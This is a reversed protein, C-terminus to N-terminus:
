KVLQKQSVLICSQGPVYFVEHGTGSVQKSFLKLFEESTENFCGAQKMIEKKFLLVGNAYLEKPKWVNVMEDNNDMLPSFLKPSNFESIAAIGAKSITSHFYLLDYLWNKCVIASADFICIYEARAEAILKNYAVAFNSNMEEDEVVGVVNEFKSTTVINQLFESIKGDFTNNVILIEVEIGQANRLM